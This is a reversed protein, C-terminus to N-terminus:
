RNEEIGQAQRSQRFPRQSVAAEEYLQKEEATLGAEDDFTEPETVEESEVTEQSETVEESETAEEPEATEEMPFLESLVVDETEEFIDAGADDFEEEGVAEPMIEEPMEPMEEVNEVTEPM